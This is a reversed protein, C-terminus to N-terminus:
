YYHVGFRDVGGYYAGITYYGPSPGANQVQLNITYSDAPLIDTVYSIKQEGSGKNNNMQNGINVGPEYTYVQSNSARVLHFRTYFVFYGSEFILSFSAELRMPAAITTTANTTLHTIWGSASNLQRQTNTEVQVYKRPITLDSISSLTTGDNFTINNNFAFPM